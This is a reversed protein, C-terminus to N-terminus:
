VYTKVRTHTHTHSLYLTLSLSHTHTYSLSLSLSRTHKQTQTHTHTHKLHCLLHSTLMITCTPDRQTYTQTPLPLHSPQLGALCCALLAVPRQASATTIAIDHYVTMGDDRDVMRADMRQRPPSPALDLPLTHGTRATQTGDWFQMCTRARM